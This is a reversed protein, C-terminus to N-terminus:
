AAQGEGRHDYQPCLEEVSIIVFTAADDLTVDLGTSRYIIRAVQQGNMGGGLARCVSYGQNLLGVDGSVRNYWGLEHIADLFSSSDADAPPATLAAIAAGTAACAVWWLTKRRTTTM